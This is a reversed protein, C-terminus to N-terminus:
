PKLIDPTGEAPQLKYTISLMGDKVNKIAQRHEELESSALLRANLQGKAGRELMAIRAPGNVGGVNLDIAHDLAWIVAFIADQVRPARKSWFVKRMLGLFLDTIGQASGM